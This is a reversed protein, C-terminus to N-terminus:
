PGTCIFSCLTTTGGVALQWSAFVGSEKVGYLISGLPSEGSGDVTAWINKDPGICIGFAGGGGGTPFDIVQPTGGPVYRVVRPSNDTFWIAGTSDVVLLEPTAPVPSLTIPYQTLGFSPTVQWISGINDAVWLVGGSSTIGVPFSGALAVSGAASPNGIPIRWVLGSNDTMWLNGDPGSVIDYPASAATAFFTAAGSTAVQWVGQHGQAFGQDAVWLNGDLGVCVGGPNSNTLPFFDAALTKPDIRWIGGAYACMWINKDPGVCIGQPFQSAPQVGVDSGNESGSTTVRWAYASDTGGNLQLSCWIAGSPVAALYSVPGQRQVMVFDGVNVPAGNITIVPIEGGAVQVTCIGTSVSTVTGYRIQPPPRYTSFLQRTLRM